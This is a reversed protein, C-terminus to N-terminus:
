PSGGRPRGDTHHYRRATGNKHTVLDHDPYHITDEGRRTGIVLYRADAQGRNELCHATPQGAPWAAADGPGLPTDHDEILTLTGTLVYIMEDETEHWHRFSSRSGPPLIEIFAGFQSLGGPDSLLQIAYPGLGGGLIRHPTDAYQTVPQHRLVRQGPNAPDCARGWVGPLNLLEPPLDGGRLISGDADLVQWTTTGNVQKRGSEPYHCIDGAVRSGVILYSVPADTRNTVHHANPCGHPWAAADGPALDHLGDDDRLTATGELVLMFEDEATHWHRHSSYTGPQLTDIYAGWQTVGGAVSLHLTALGGEGSIPALTPDIKM